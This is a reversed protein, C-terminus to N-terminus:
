GRGPFLYARLEMEELELMQALYEVVAERLRPYAYSRGGLYSSIVGRGLGQAREVESYSVGARRILLVLRERPDALADTREPLSQSDM